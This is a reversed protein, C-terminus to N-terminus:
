RQLMYYKSTQQKMPDNGAGKDISMVTDFETQQIEEVRLSERLRRYTTLVKRYNQIHM